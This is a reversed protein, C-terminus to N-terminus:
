SPSSFQGESIVTNMSPDFNSETKRKRTLWKTKEPVFPNIPCHFLCFKRKPNWFSSPRLVFLGWGFLFDKAKWLWTMQHKCRFRHYYKTTISWTCTLYRWLCSPLILEQDCTSHQPINEGNYGPCLIWFAMCRLSSYALPVHWTWRCIFMDELLNLSYYRYLKM